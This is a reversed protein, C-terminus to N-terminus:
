FFFPAMKLWLDTDGYPMYAHETLTIKIKTKYFLNPAWLQYQKM